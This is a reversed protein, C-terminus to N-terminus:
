APPLAIREVLGAGPPGFGHTSVYLAGDPGFTMGTPFMLGSAITQHTGGPNVRVVAGTSPTLRAPTDTTTNELAYLRGREDFALGLVATLGEAWRSLRGDRGVRWIRSGGPQLPLTGLNGVFFDPGDFAIATPVVHGEAASIDVLRSIEGDLGIRDVEGHNPEVAYLADGAAVMGYWTGDYEDDDPDPQAVPHTRLFAGLDAVLKWSGDMGVRYIGNVTGALGHSCGAGALLAYLTDGVFAVSAVGSVQGRSRASSQTSPLGDVLTSRTGTADIRSIRATMGGSYPGIPPPIQVCDEASTTTTGGRGAEAVFLDGGPAFALGRPCDLGSAIVSM